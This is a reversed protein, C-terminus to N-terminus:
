ARSLLDGLIGMIALFYLMADEDSQTALPAAWVKFKFSKVGLAYDTVLLVFESLELSIFTYEVM